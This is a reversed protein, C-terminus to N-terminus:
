VPHEEFDPDIPDVWSAVVARPEACDYYLRVITLSRQPPCALAQRLEKELEKLRRRLETKKTKGGMKYTDPNFRLFVVPLGGYSGFIDLMRRNDCSYGPYAHQNEDVELIVVHTSTDFVFDPRYRGCATEEVERNWSTWKFGAEQLKAAVQKERTRGYKTRSSDHEVCM